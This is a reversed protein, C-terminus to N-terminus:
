KLGFHDGSPVRTSAVFLESTHTRFASPAPAVLSVV